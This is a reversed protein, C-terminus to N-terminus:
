KNNERENAKQHKKEKWERFDLESKHQPGCSECWSALWDSGALPNISELWQSVKWKDFVRVFKVVAPYRGPCFDCSDLFYDPGPQQIKYFNTMKDRGKECVRFLNRNSKQQRLGEVAKPLGPM